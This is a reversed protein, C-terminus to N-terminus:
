DNSNQTTVLHAQTYVERGTYESELLGRREKANSEPWEVM